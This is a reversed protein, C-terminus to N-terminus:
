QQWACFARAAQCGTCTFNADAVLVDNSLSRKSDRATSDILNLLTCDHMLYQSPITAISVRTSAGRQRKAAPGSQTSTESLTSGEPVYGEEEWERLGFLGEQPRCQPEQQRDCGKGTFHCAVAKSVHAQLRIAQSQHAILHQAAAFM